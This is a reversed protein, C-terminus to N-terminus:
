IVVAVDRLVQEGLRERGWLQIKQIFVKWRDGQGDPGGIKELGSKMENLFVYRSINFYNRKLSTM